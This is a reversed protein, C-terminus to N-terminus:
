LRDPPYITTGSRSRTVIPDRTSNNREQNTASQIDQPIVNFHQRNRRVQGVPTSIIYSRPTNAPQLVTGTAPQNGTTVWVDTDDPIPPLNRVGHKRNYKEKQQEKFHKNQLRFDDIYSWHLILESTLISINGRICRGMLLEAPSRKCWAFLTSRYTMIAMYPDQSDKILRKVTQVTREM